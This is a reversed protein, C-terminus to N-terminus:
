EGGRCRPAVVRDPSIECWVVAERAACGNERVRDHLPPSVRQGTKKSCRSKKRRGNAKGDPSGRRVLVSGFLSFVAELMEAGAALGMAM